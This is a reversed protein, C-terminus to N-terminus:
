KISEKFDEAIQPIHEGLTEMVSPAYHRIREVIYKLNLLFVAGRDYEVEKGKEEKLSILEKDCKLQDVRGKHVLSLLKVILDRDAPTVSLSEQDEIESLKALAIKEVRALVDRNKDGAEDWDALIQNIDKGKGM